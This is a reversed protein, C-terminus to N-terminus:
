VEKINVEGNHRLYRARRELKEESIGNKGKLEV